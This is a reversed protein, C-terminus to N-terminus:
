LVSINETPNRQLSYQLMNKHGVLPEFGNNKLEKWYMNTTITGARLFNYHIVGKTAWYVTSM